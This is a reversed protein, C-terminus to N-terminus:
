KERIKLQGNEVRLDSIFEPLKLKDHNEPDALKAQLRENVLSVPVNLSGIKFETPDFTVYGDKAGLRGRVTVYIDRGYQQVSTQAIVEDGVFAIQTKDLAAKLEEPDLPLSSDANAGPQEAKPNAAQQAARVSSDAVFSNVEDATFTAESGMRGSEQAQKLEELKASFQQSQQSVAAPALPATAREPRKLMLLVVVVLVILFVWRAVKYIKAGTRAMRRLKGRRAPRVGEKEQM